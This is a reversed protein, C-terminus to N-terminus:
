MLNINAFVPFLGAFARKDTLIIVFECFDLECAWPWLWLSSCGMRSCFPSHIHSGKCMEYYSAGFQLNWFWSQGSSCAHPAALQGIRSWYDATNQSCLTLLSSEQTLQRSYCELSHWNWLLKFHSHCSVLSLVGYQWHHGIHWEMILVEILFNSYSFTRCAAKESYLVM